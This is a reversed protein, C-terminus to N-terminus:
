YEGLLQRSHSLCPLGYVALTNTTENQETTKERKTHTETTENNRRVLSHACRSLRTRKTYTHHVHLLLLSRLM